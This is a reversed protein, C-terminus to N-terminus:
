SLQCVIDDEDVGIWQDWLGGGDVKDFLEERM